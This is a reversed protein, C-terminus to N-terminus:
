GGCKCGDGCGSEDSARPLAFPLLKCLLSIRDSMALGGKSFIDWDQVGDAKEIQALQVEIVASIRERLAATIRNPTGAVRGGTKCGIAV